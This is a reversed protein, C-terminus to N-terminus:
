TLLEIILREYVDTLLLLDDCSVCEDIQHITANVPGLELVETGTPAIFRGDSTGGSTSLESTIGCVKEIASCTAAVLRGRGTIFPNGSLRWSLQYDLDHSDLLDHVRTKLQEATVETSFRFNFQCHLEGPIVNEVGTGASLNSVQFTTQPFFENGNDWVEKTLSQLAAAFLHVPNRALHPYAVHGQRGNVTLRGNLSGRRGNKVVDGLRTTSTPEGVICWDIPTNQEQLYDMVRVTGDVAPGEEDSTILFGMRGRLSHNAMVRKTAVMMAAISSKMDAAGRGYLYGDNVTADFPPFTWQDEPGAPVVDTHGAFVLLPGSGSTAAWLNKVEGFKLHSSEFGLPQLFDAILQQCGNDEPTVSKKQILQRALEITEAM